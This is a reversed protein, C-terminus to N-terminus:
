KQVFGKKNKHRHKNTIKNDIVTKMAGVGTDLKQYMNVRDILDGASLLKYVRAGTNDSWHDTHGSRKGAVLQLGSFLFIDESSATDTNDRTSIHYPLPTKTRLYDLLLLFHCLVM